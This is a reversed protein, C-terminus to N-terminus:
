KREKSIITFSIIKRFTDLSIKRFKDKTIYLYAVSIWTNMKCEAVRSSENILESLKKTSDKHTKVYLVM